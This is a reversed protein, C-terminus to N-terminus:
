VGLMAVPKPERQVLGNALGNSHHRARSSARGELGELEQRMSDLLGDMHQIMARARLAAVDLATRGTVAKLADRRGLEAMRRESERRSRELRRLFAGAQGRLMVAELVRQNRGNRNTVM